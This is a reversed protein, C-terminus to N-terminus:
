TLGTKECFSFNKFQGACIGCRIIFAGASKEAPANFKVKNYRGTIVEYIRIVKGM